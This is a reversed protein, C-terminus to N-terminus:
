KVITSIAFVRNTSSELRTWIKYRRDFANLSPMDPVVIKVNNSFDVYLVSLGRSFAKSLQKLWFKKGLETQEADCVVTLYDALLEEFVRSPLDLKYSPDAWLWEQVVYSGLLRHQHVKFEMKYVIRERTPDVAIYQHVHGNNGSYLLVDGLRGVVTYLPDYRVQQMFSKYQELNRTPNALLSIVPDILQSMEVIIDKIKM